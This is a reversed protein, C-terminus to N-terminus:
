SVDSLIESVTCTSACWFAQGSIQSVKETKADTEHKGFTYSETSQLHACHCLSRRRHVTHPWQVTWHSATSSHGDTALRQAHGSDGSDVETMMFADNVFM